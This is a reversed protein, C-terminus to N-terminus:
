QNPKGDWDGIVPRDGSAGFIFQNAITANDNSLFFELTSTRWVGITDIGNGDFDGAVPLDGNTGFFASIDIGPAAVNDNTLFFQGLSPRFVGVSDEGNADWDGAVPLDEAIGFRQTLDVALSLNNSTIPANSLLFLGASPRYVGLTDLGDNNWDGVVPLDGAQGFNATFPAVPYGSVIVNANSIKWIGNNFTSVTDRGDGNFDGAVAVDGVIGRDVVIDAAGATLTNRLDFETDIPDFAGITDKRTDLIKAVFGDPNTANATSTQKISGPTTLLNSSRTTGGIFIFNGRVAIGSADENGSGGLFSASSVGPNSNVGFRIKAVFADRGGRNTAQFPTATPFTTTSLTNGTVYITGGNGLAISLGQDQDAGGLFTSNLKAGSSSYQAIFAENIQNTSDIANQLPFNASGTIGTIAATGNAAVAISFASDTGSGGLYTSYILSDNGSLSPNFKAIWADTGGGSTGQAANKTPFNGGSAQGTLYANNAADVAVSFATDRTVSGGICTSYIIDSGSANLVTLFADLSDLSIPFVFGCGQYRNKTPFAVNSFTEGAVYARGSADIAIDFAMDHGAGGLFTSYSINGSANLKAAFADANNLTGHVTDYAGSTTPFNPSASGALFAEGNGNVAIGFGFDDDTGELITIYVFATGDANIKAAFVGSGDSSSRTEGHFDLSTTTGTIYANFQADAAIEFVQDFAAGGIYTLYDVAPDITLPLAVDYEGLAFSVTNGDIAYDVEVRRKEGDVVQFAFPKQQMLATNETEVILNGHADVSIKKTGELGLRIQDPDANPAVNFDYELQNAANGYFVADIGDYLASYNVRGYNSLNEFRKQGIYYNTKTLAEDEASMTVDAKAGEFRMKMTDSKTDVRDKKGPLKETQEEIATKLSFVVENKTLYMTYGQGRSVFKVASDTQGNNQEFMLRFKGFNTRKLDSSDDAEIMQVPEIAQEAM